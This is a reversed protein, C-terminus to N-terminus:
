LGRNAASTTQDDTTRRSASGDRNRYAGSRRPKQDPGNHKRQYPKVPPPSPIWPDRKGPYRPERFIGVVKDQEKEEHSPPSTNSESSGKPTVSLAMRSLRAATFGHPDVTLRVLKYPRQGGEELIRSHKKHAPSIPRGPYAKRTRERLDEDHTKPPHKGKGPQGPAAMM